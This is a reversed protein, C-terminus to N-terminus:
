RDVMWILHELKGGVQEGTCYALPGDRLGEVEEGNSVREGEKIRQLAEEEEQRKREWAKQDKVRFVEFKAPEPVELLIEAGTVPHVFRVSTLAM